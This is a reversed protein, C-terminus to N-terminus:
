TVKLETYAVDRIHKLHTRLWQQGEMPGSDIMKERRDILQNTSIGTVTLGRLSGIFFSGFSSDRRSLRTSKIRETTYGLRDPLSGQKDM